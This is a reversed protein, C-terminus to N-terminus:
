GGLLDEVVDDIVGELTDTVGDEPLPGDLERQPLPSATPLPTTTPAVSPQPLPTATPSASVPPPAVPPTVTAPPAVPVDPPAVAPMIAATIDDLVAQVGAAAGGLAPLAQRQTAAFTELRDLAREDGDANWVGILTAAGDHAQEGAVALAQLAAREDGQRTAHVAEDVRDTAYALLREGRGLADGELGLRVDELALKAGYLLHGPLAHEAAAAVGGGSLALAAVGTATATGTAYRFRRTSDQVAARVRALLPPSAAQARAVAMLQARQRSRVDDPLPTVTGGSAAASLARALVVLDRHERGAAPSARDLGDALVDIDNRKITM